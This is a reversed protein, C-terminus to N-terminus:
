ANSFIGKSSTSTNRVIISWSTMQMCLVNSVLLSPRLLLTLKWVLISYCLPYQGTSCGNGSWLATLSMFRGESSLEQKSSFRWYAYATQRASRCPALGKDNWIEVSHRLSKQSQWLSCVKGATGLDVWGEVRWIVTFHTDAKPILLLLLHRHHIHIAAM